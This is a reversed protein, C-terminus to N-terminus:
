RARRRRQLGILALGAVLTMPTSVEPVASLRVDGVALTSTEDYDGVDAIGFAITHTGADAFSTSFDLWGTHAANGGTGALTAALTDALTTVRGDIVVFAVDALGADQRTDLTGLDWRFSLTAGAAASFSQAASSGETAVVFNAADPDLAGLPVGVADELGGPQGVAVAAVGSANRAGAALQSDFDDEYALSATTLWLLSAGAEVRTSADGATTWGALGQTFDGNAVQAGATAPLAALLALAAASLATRRSNLHNMHLSM